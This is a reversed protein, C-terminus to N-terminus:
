HIELTEIKMDRRFATSPFLIGSLSPYPRSASSLQTLFGHLDQWFSRQPGDHGQVELHVPCNMKMLDIQKTSEAVQNPAVSEFDGNTHGLSSDSVVKEGTHRSQYSFPTEKM